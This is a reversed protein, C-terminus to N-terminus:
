RYDVVIFLFVSSVDDDTFGVHHFKRLFANSGANASTELTDCIGSKFQPSYPLPVNSQCGGALLFMLLLLFVPVRM